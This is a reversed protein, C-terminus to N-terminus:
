ILEYTKTQSDYRYKEWYTNMAYQVLIVLGEAFTKLIRVANGEEDFFVEFIDYQNNANRIAILSRNRAELLLNDRDMKSVNKNLCYDLYSINKGNETEIDNFALANNHYPITIVIQKNILCIDENNYQYVGNVSISKGLSIGKPNQECYFSYKQTVANETRLTKQSTNIRYDSVTEKLYLLNDQLIVLTWFNDEVAYLAYRFCTDNCKIILMKEPHSLDNIILIIGFIVFFLCGFLDFGNLSVLVPALVFFIFCTFAVTFTHKKWFGVNKWVNSYLFLLTEYM